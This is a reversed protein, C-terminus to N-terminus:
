DNGEDPNFDEDFPGGREARRHAEVADEKSDIVNVLKFDSATHYAGNPYEIGILRIGYEPNVRQGLLVMALIRSLPEVPDTVECVFYRKGKECYLPHDRVEDPFEGIFEVQDLVRIRRSM